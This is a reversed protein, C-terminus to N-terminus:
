NLNANNYVIWNLWWMSLPHSAQTGGGYGIKTPTIFTGVAESYLNLFNIGDRSVDFFLTTGNNRLQFWMGSLSSSGYNESIFPNSSDTTVNAIKEVRVATQVPTTLGLFEIGMLKTGDYFYLGTDTITTGALSAFQTKVKYPTAPPTTFLGRWNLGAVLPMTMLVSGGSVTQTATAAGQNVWTFTGINPVSYSISPAAGVVSIVGSSAGITVGDVQALGAQSSTTLQVAPAGDSRMFTSASGNIATPGATATPNAGVAVTSSTFLVYTLPDTGVTAIQSTLLWSTLANITGNVVPIAGTNNIDSPMDYDLARTLIVPLLATQVQTVYYVGNFAGSPSQTDNKVLLRQGLATFTYGDVTLATNAVGTLTAGIGSAGNNYTYTSTNAALTTAAQVAVAPNVGAIANNIGTTVYATTAIKTSNDSTSQTTTTPSGPLAISTQITTFGASDSTVAGTLPRPPISIGDQGDEGDGGPAGIGDRGSSGAAGSTGPQGPISIGDEGDNGDMGPISFGDKGSSGATGSSGPSGPIAIGDLGDEGDLGMMILFQSNSNVPRYPEDLAAFAIGYSPGIEENNLAEEAILLAENATVQAAAAAEEAAAIEAELAAIVAPDITGSSIGQFFRLWPLSFTTGDESIPLRAQPLSNAM